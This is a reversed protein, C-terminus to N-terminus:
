VQKDIEHTMDLYTLCNPEFRKSREEYGYLGLCFLRMLTQSEDTHHHSLSQTGDVAAACKGAMHNVLISYEVVWKKRM